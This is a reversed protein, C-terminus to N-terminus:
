LFNRSVDRKDGMGRTNGMDCRLEHSAGGVM